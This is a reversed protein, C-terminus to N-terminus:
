RSSPGGAGGHFQAAPVAATTLTHAAILDNEIELRHLDTWAESLVFSCELRQPAAFIVGQSDDPAAVKKLHASLRARVIGEGIYLLQADDDGRIRYIGTRGTAIGEIAAGLPQWGSWAIGYWGGAQPEGRLAGLPAIGREHCAEIGGCRGGRFRKGAAVLKANNGSSMRYGPPMRGFNVTPSYGHQQRHLAIQVAEVGLRWPTPGVVPAASAEFAAGQQRLAWLGPGATHPDRYPMEASYAGKLMALRQRLTMGTQGVYDLDERGVRRVRYVGPAAPLSRDDWAGILPRWPTWTFDVDM